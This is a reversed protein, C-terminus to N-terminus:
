STEWIAPSALVMALMREQWWSKNSVCNSVRKLVRKGCASGQRMYWRGVAISETRIEESCRLRGAVADHNHGPGVLVM